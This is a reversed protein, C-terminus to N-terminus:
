AGGSIVLFISRRFQHGTTSLHTTNEAAQQTRADVIVKKPNPNGASQVEATNMSASYTPGSHPATKEVVQQSREHINIKEFIGRSRVATLRDVARDYQREFRSELRNIIELSCSRDILSGFALAIVTAPDENPLTSKLRSIERNLISTELKWLCTRRWRALAMTGILTHEIESHPQFEREFSALVATLQGASEPDAFLTRSRLGHQGSANGPKEANRPCPRVPEGEQAISNRSSNAKGIATVPGRSKAGNARAAAARRESTHRAPIIPLRKM